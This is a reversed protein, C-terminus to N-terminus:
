RSRCCRARERQDVVQRTSGEQGGGALGWSTGGAAYVIVFISDQRRRDSLNIAVISSDVRVQRELLEPTAEMSSISLGLALSLNVSQEIPQMALAVNDRLLGSLTSAFKSYNLVGAMGLAFSM